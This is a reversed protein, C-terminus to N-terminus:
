IDAYCNGRQIVAEQPESGYATRAADPLFPGEQGESRRDRLAPQSVDGSAFADIASLVGNRQVM